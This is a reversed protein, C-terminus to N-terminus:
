QNWWRRITASDTTADKFGHATRPVKGKPQIPFVPYGHGAYWLAWGLHDDASGPKTPRARRGVRAPDFEADADPDEPLGSAVFEDAPDIDAISETDDSMSRGEACAGEIGTSPREMYQHREVETSHAEEAQSTRRCVAGSRCPHLSSDWEIAARLPDAGQDGADEAM